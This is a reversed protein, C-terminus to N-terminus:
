PELQQNEVPVTKSNRNNNITMVAWSGLLILGILGLAVLLKTMVGSNQGHSSSAMASNSRHVLEDEEGPRLNIRSIWTPSSNGTQYGDIRVARIGEPNLHTIGNRIFTLSANKPPCNEAILDVHLCANKLHTHVTIGKGILPAQILQGIAKPDGQQAQEITSQQAKM